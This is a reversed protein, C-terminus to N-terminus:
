EALSIEVEKRAGAEVRVARKQTPLERGVEVVHRGKSLRAKVPARGMWVDDIWVNGWPQVVVHLWGKGAPQQLKSPM